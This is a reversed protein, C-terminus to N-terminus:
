RLLALADAVTEAQEFFRNLRTTELLGALFPPAAALVIRQEQVNARAVLNILESLGTSSLFVLGSLDLVARGGRQTLAAAVAGAATEDSDSVGGLEGRFRFVYIDNHRETVIEASM